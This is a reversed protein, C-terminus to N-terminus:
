EKLICLFARDNVPSLLSLRWRYLGPALSGPVEPRIARVREGGPMISFRKRALVEIVSGDPAVAELVAPVSALTTTSQNRLLGEVPLTGGEPPVVVFTQRPDGSTIRFGVDAHALRLFTSLQGGFTSYIVGVEGRGGVAFRDVESSRLSALIDSALFTRGGDLSYNMWVEVSPRWSSYAVFVHENDDAALFARSSGHPELVIPDSLWTRGYDHSVNFHTPVDAWAVYVNGACDSALSPNNSVSNDPTAELPTPTSFSAGFDDSVSVYATATVDPTGGIWAVYVHGTDDCDIQPNIYYPLDALLVPPDFWTQGGDNSVNFALKDVRCEDDTCSITQAVYYVNGFRDAAIATPNGDPELQIPPSWTERGDMSAVFSSECYVYIWGPPGLAARPNGGCFRGDYVPRDAGLWTAGRDRSVNIRCALGPGSDRFDTFVVYVDGEPSALLGRVTSQNSGMPDTDVRVPASWSAGFDTSRMFYIDTGGFERSHYAYYVEGDPGFAVHGSFGFSRPPLPSDPGEFRWTNDALASLSLVWATALTLVAAPLRTSLIKRPM